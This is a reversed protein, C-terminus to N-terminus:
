YIHVLRSWHTCLFIIFFPMYQFLDSITDKGEDIMRKFYLYDMSNQLKSPLLEAVNEYGELEFAEQRLEALQLSTEYYM